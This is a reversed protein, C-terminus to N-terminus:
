GDSPGVHQALWDSLPRSAVLFDAVIERAAPTALWPGAPWEKWAVLGKYRLFEIRPHDAPYGRPATKLSDRGHVDIDQKRLVTIVKELASGTRDAAAARRYRELQDPAMGYMGCGAALGAASLQVYGDGVHAGMATKYPTKDRSFRLDRYPRYIKTDGHEPELEALLEAMPLLVCTEYVDKHAMWYVRSNDAELGDYFDLAEEPWGQFAM